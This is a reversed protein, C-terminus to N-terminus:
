KLLQPHRNHLGDLACQLLTECLNPIVQSHQAEFLLFMDNKDDVRCLLVDQNEIKDCIWLSDIKHIGGILELCVKLCLFDHLKCMQIHWLMHYTVNKNSKIWIISAILLHKSFNKATCLIDEKKLLFLLSHLSSSVLVLFSFRVISHAFHFWRVSHLHCSYLWNDWYM